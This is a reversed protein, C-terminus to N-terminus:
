SVNTPTQNNELAQHFSKELKKLDIPRTILDEAGLDRVRNRDRTMGQATVALIPIERTKHDAKLAEIAEFGDM